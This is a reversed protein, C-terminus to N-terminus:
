RPDRLLAEPHVILLCLESCPTDGSGNEVFAPLNGGGDANGGRNCPHAPVSNLGNGQRCLFGSSGNRRTQSVRTSDQRDRNPSPWRFPLVEIRQSVQPDIKVALARYDPDKYKVAAIELLPSIESTKFEIIQQYPWKQQGSVFPLLYNLAKRINRGDTSQFDWLDVGVNEGLLGLEFLGALNMASYGLAKTRELELPQRGDPEIQTAIRKESVSKLIQKAEDTNGVFLALSAIQVDYYSGHNNKAAAEAKGNESHLMWDLFRTCWGTLGRQDAATWSQSGELLGVTDVLRYLDRTEILGTGRGTNRGLIGQAFELNPNMLTQPNLFWVRLLEAAHAAYREDGFFYYALALTHTTSFLKDFNKHDAIKEIEPNVQGDRRIYPLGNPKAPDPWWYPAQSMYDHKDGSPPPIAKDMVSMPPQELAKDADERLQGFSPDKLNGEARQDRLQQMIPPPFSFVRPPKGSPRSPSAQAWAAGPLAAIMAMMMVKFLIASLKTKSVRV